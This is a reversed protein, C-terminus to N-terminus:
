LTSINSITLFLYSLNDADYFYQAILCVQNDAHRLLISNKKNKTMIEEINRINKWFLRYV